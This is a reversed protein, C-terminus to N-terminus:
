FFSVEKTLNACNECDVLVRKNKRCKSCSLVEHSKVINENYEVRGLGCKLKM